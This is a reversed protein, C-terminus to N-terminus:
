ADHSTKGPDHGYGYGQQLATRSQRHAFDDTTTAPLAQSFRLCNNLAFKITGHPQSTM